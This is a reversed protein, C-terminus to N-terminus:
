NWINGNKDNYSETSGDKSWDNIANKEHISNHCLLSNGEEILKVTTISPKLYKKKM